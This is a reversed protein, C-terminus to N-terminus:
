SGGRGRLAFWKGRPGGVEERSRSHTVCCRCSVRVTAGASLADCTRCLLLRHHSSCPSRHGVGDEGEAPKRHVHKSHRCDEEQTCDAGHLEDLASSTSATLVPSRKTFKSQRSLPRTNHCATSMIERRRTHATGNIIGAGIEGARTRQPRTNHCATSM